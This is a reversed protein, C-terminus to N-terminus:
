ACRQEQGAACPRVLHLAFAADGSAQKAENCSLFMFCVLTCPFHQTQSFLHEGGEKGEGLATPSSAPSRCPLSRGRSAKPSSPQVAAMSSGDPWPQM